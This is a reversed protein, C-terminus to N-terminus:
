GCLRPYLKRTSGDSTHVILRDAHQMMPLFDRVLLGRHTGGHFDGAPGTMYGLLRSVDHVQGGRVLVASMMSRSRRQQVDMGQAPTWPRALTTRALESGKAVYCYTACRHSYWVFVTGRPDVGQMNDSNAMMLTAISNDCFIIM